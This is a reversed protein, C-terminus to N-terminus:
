RRRFAVRNFSLDLFGRHQAVRVLVAFAIRDRCFKRAEDSMQFRPFADGRHQLHQHPPQEGENTYQRRRHGGAGGGVHDQAARVRGGGHHTLVQPRDRGNWRWRRTRRGRDGEIGADGVVEQADADVVFEIRVVQPEIVSRVVMPHDFSREAVADTTPRQLLKPSLCLPLELWLAVRDRYHNRAQMTKCRKPVRTANPCCRKPFHNGPAKKGQMFRNDASLGDQRTGATRGAKPYGFPPLRAIALGRCNASASNHAVTVIAPHHAALGPPKSHDPISFVAVAIQFRPAARPAVIALASAPGTPASSACAIAETAATVVDSRLSGSGATADAATGAVSAAVTPRPGRWVAKRRAPTEAAPAVTTSAGKGSAPGVGGGSVWSRSTDRNLGSAGTSSCACGATRGISITSSHRTTSMQMSSYRQASYSRVGLTSVFLTVFCILVVTLVFFPLVRVTVLVM